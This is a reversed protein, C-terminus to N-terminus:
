RSGSERLQYLGRLTKSGLLVAAWTAGISRYITTFISEGLYYDFFILEFIAISAMFSITYGLPLKFLNNCNLASNQSWFLFLAFFLGVANLAFTLSIFPSIYQEGARFQHIIEPKATFRTPKETKVSKRFRETPDLEGIAVLLNYEPNADGVLVSVIISESSKLFDSIFKVSIKSTFLNTYSDFTPYYYSSLQQDATSLLVAVQEPKSILKMDENDILNFSVTVYTNNLDLPLTLSSSASNDLKIKENGVKLANSFTALFLVLGTIINSFRISM